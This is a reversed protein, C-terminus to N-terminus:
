LLLLLGAALLGGQFGQHSTSYKYLYCHEHFSWGFHVTNLRDAYSLYYWQIM